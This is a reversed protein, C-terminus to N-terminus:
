QQGGSSAKPADPQVSKVGQILAKIAARYNKLAETVAKQDNKFSTATAKPDPNDCSFGAKDRALADVAAQAAAKQANVAAVLENYNSLTHGKDTYFKQVRESVKTYLDLQKQGRDNIRGMIDAVSNQRNKCIRLKADPLKAQPAVASHEVETGAKVGPQQAEASHKVETGAKTETHPAETHTTETHTAETHSNTGDESARASVPASWVSSVALGAAMVFGLTLLSTIRCIPKPSLNKLM